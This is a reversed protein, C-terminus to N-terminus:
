AEAAQNKDETSEDAASEESDGQEDTDEDAQTAFLEEAAFQDEDDDTLSRGQAQLEAEEVTRAVNVQVSIAVEPHLSIRVEHLGLLKIPRDLAVQSREVLTGAENLGAAIDRASVSGYLQGNEGAQRVLVISLGEAKIAVQEAESRRELNRTELDVRQNEFLVKNAKNARLAKKKPLLFNRAYGNKVTVVDGMQGLREIRELLIVDM